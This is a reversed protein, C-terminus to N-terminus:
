GLAIISADLVALGVAVSLEEEVVSVVVVALPLVALGVAFAAVDPLVLVAIVSFPDVAELVAGSLEAELEAVGILALPELPLLMSSALLGGGVPDDVVSVPPLADLGALPLEAPVAAPVVEVAAPLISHRLSDPLRNVVLKHILALELVALGVSM